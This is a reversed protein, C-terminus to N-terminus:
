LLLFVCNNLLHASVAAVAGEEERGCMRAGGCYADSRPLSCFAVSLSEVTDVSIDASLSLHSNSRSSAGDYM